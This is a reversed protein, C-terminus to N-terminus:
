SRDEILESLDSIEKIQKWNEMGGTWVLTQSNIASDKWLTKLQDFPIPGQQLRAQDLYFWEKKTILENKLLLDQEFPEKPDLKPTLNQKDNNVKPLAFLVLLGFISLSFGIVFWIYPNRGRSSAFHACAAGMFLWLILFLIIM